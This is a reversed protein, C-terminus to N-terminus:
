QYLEALVEWLVVHRVAIFHGNLLRHRQNYMFPRHVLDFVEGGISQLLGQGAATDWECTPHLRPYVDIQHELMMCFKYASGAFCLEYEINKEELLDIIQQYSQAQDDYKKYSRSLALKLPRDIPLNNTDNEAHYQSLSIQHDNTWQWKYPLQGKRSIYICHHLPVALASIVSHGNEILSLNITFEGTKKIFEKTGDLPDILWFRQWTQRAVDSDEESLIPINRDKERLKEVLFDHVLLDAQTVPSTDDKSQIDFSEGDCYQQYQQQLIASATQLIQCLQTLEADIQNLNVPSFM